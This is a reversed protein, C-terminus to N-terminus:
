SVCSKGWLRVYKALVSVSALAALVAGHMGDLFGRQVVYMKFFRLPPRMVIDSARARRGRAHQQDAWWASYRNLKEFYHDLSPYPYHWLAERLEGPPQSVVVHEHVRADNYRLSSRFLRVPRDREWGGHRIERGLFVNRRPVRYADRYADGAPRAVVAEVERALAPTAREDADVVLIWAHSARAIALNRQAGITAAPESLVVAGAARALTVTEDSSGHEAVIVEAAWRVADICAVINPAENRAAIVVTVPVRDTPLTAAARETTM